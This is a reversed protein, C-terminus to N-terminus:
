KTLDGYKDKQWKDVEKMVSGFFSVLSSFIYIGGKIPFAIIKIIYTKM